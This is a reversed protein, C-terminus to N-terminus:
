SCAVARKNKRGDRRAHWEPATAAGTAVSSCDFLGRREIEGKLTSTMQRRM